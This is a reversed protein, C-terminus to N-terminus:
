HFFFFNYDAISCSIYESKEGVHRFYQYSPKYLSYFPFWITRELYYVIAIFSSRLISMKLNGEVLKKVLKKSMAMFWPWNASLGIYVSYMLDGSIQSYIIFSVSLYKLFGHNVDESFHSIIVIMFCFWLAISLFM